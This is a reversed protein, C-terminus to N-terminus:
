RLQIIRDSEGWARDATLAPRGLRAALALCLRDGLSLGSGRRWSSAANEADAATVPEVRLDYSLLLARAVGWDAGGSRIKQAIESWNAAGIVAGDLYSEVQDAGPEGQMYALVASADLVTM